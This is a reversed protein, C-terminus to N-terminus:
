RLTISSPSSPQRPSIFIVDSGLMLPPRSSHSRRYQASALEILCYTRENVKLYVFSVQLGKPERELADDGVPVRGVEFRAEVGQDGRGGVAALYADGEREGEGFDDDVRGVLHITEEGVHRVEERPRLFIGDHLCDPRIRGHGRIRCAPGKGHLALLPPPRIPLIRNTM